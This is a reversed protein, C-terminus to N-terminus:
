EKLEPLGLEVRYENLAATTKAKFETFSITHAVFLELTDRFKDILDEATM